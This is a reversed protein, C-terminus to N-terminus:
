GDSGVEGVRSEGSCDWNSLSVQKAQKAKEFALGAWAESWFVSDCAVLWYSSLKRPRASLRASNM